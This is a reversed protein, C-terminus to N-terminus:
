HRRVIFTNPLANINKLNKSNRSIKVFGNETLKVIDNYILFHKEDYATSIHYHGSFWLEFKLKEDVEDFFKTLRNTGYNVHPFLSNQIDEPMSHTIVIDVKWGCDELAQRGAAIEEESPLEENWISKGLQRYEKDHSEAGGFAFFKHGELEFVSGRMIHIIKDTIKHVNVGNWKEVPYKNLMDFNEHNGDIWLTTWPKRDLWKLWHREGKSNDWRLGFDGCIIVYDSSTLKKGDSFNKSTLKAIDIDGHIDGTIYIM